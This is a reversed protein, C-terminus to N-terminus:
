DDDGKEVEFKLKNKLDEINIIDKLEDLDMKDIVEEIKANVNSLKEEVQKKKASMEPMIKEMIRPYCWNLFGCTFPLTALTVVLGMQTNMTKFVRKADSTRSKVFRKIKVNHLIEDYTSGLNKVSKFDNMKQECEYQKIHDLKDKIDQALNEANIGDPFKEELGQERIIQLIQEPTCTAIAKDVNAKKDKLFRITKKVVTELTVDKEVLKEAAENLLTQTDKGAAKAKEDLMKELHKNLKLSWIEDISKGFKKEIEEKNQTKFENFFNKKAEEIYDQCILEKYEIPQDKMAIRMRAVESKETKIQRQKVEADIQKKDYYPHELRIIRKLYREHPCASLDARTFLGKTGKKEKISAQMTIWDNFWKTITLQTVLAIAASIPQRWASYEKTKADEKSFPNFAIFLPCIIATGVATVIINLAEGQHEGVYNFFRSVRGNNQTIHNWIEPDLGKGRFSPKTQVSNQYVNKNVNEVKM